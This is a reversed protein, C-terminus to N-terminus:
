MRIKYCMRESLEPYSEMLCDIEEFAGTLMVVIGDGLEDMMGVLDQITSAAMDPADTIMVCGGTLKERQEALALGNLKEASIKVISSASFYGVHNLEKTLRKAVALVIREEGGAFVFHADQRNKRVRNIVGKLTFYQIGRSSIDEVEDELMDDLSEPQKRKESEFREPELREPEMREPEMCEPEMREPELVQTELPKAKIPHPRVVKPEVIKPQKVIPEVPEEMEPEEMEPEEPEPEEPEPEKMEPEETEPEEMGTVNVPSMAYTLPEEIEPEEPEPIEDDKPPQWDASECRKQLEYAKEVIRGEGFWLQLDKCEQICDKRRGEQEYLRALQYGWEETYEERKLEELIDILTARSEGGARAILYRLEFTELTPPGAFEYALFLERAEDMDGMRLVLRLLRNLVHRSHTREYILYFIEKKKDMREAKEYLDAYLYLDELSGVDRLSMTDILELAVTYQNEQLLDRVQACRRVMDYRKGM